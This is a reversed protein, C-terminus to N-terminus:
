PARLLLTYLTLLTRESEARNMVETPASSREPHSRAFEANM